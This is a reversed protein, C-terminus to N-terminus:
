AAKLKSAENVTAKSNALVKNLAMTTQVTAMAAKLRQRSTMRKSVGNLEAFNVDSEGLTMWPDALLEEATARKKPDVVLMRSVFRQAEPSVDDWYPSHFQYQGKMIKKFLQVQSNAHFPTYGCLMVYTIVGISWIDVAKGYLQHDKMMVNRAVEPAIYEPTGCSSTLNNDKSDQKALGFDAIKISADDDRSTMLINDPKLDRHVIGLSHCYTITELLIKILDRCEKETYYEKDVIRDFLEGGEVLDMVTYYYEPEDFFGHLNLVNPHKMQKLLAVELHIDKVDQESLKAKKFCKVAYVVNTQRHTAKRVVSFAGEGIKEGLQYQDRFRKGNSAGALCSCVLGM